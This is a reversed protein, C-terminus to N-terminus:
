QVGDFTYIYSSASPLGCTAGGSNSDIRLRSPDAPVELLITEVAVRNEDLDHADYPGSARRLTLRTAHSIPLAIEVPMCGQDEPKPYGSIRRSLVFVTIRDNNRMAYVGIGPANNIELRRKGASLNVTPGERMRVELMEGAGVSNLVSMLEWQPYAHGGKHWPAHSRWLSGEGFMFFNVLKFGAQRQSLFSDLTATGASLSKMVEEQARAEEATVSQRNLGNMAYGPGGEYSAAALPRNRIASIRRAADAYRRAYPETVQSVQNLVNFFSAKTRAPPGEGEDWGGNYLAIGLFDAAPSAVAAKEGYDFRTRGGIVIEIKEDLDATHWAPSARMQDIVWNQYLGYVEAADYRRGTTADVMSPFVWPAFLPNWTENGIELYIRDFIQTWPRARGQAVRRAAWPRTAPDDQEPRFEGALYDVLGRWEDASLHPEIQLWPRLGAKEMMALTEPLGPIQGGRLPLGGTRTLAELDYSAYGTKIMAHTRLASIGSEKLRAYDEPPLDLFPIAARHIRFEDIDFRGPGEFVLEMRGVPRDEYLLSPVTFEAIHHEWDTGVAFQIGPTAVQRGSLRFRVINSRNARLRVSIQYTEGPRLVEYFDQSTGAHNYAGVPRSVQPGLTLELYSEGGWGRMQDEPHQRLAWEAGPEEDSWFGLPGPRMILGASANWVRDSIMRVRAPDLTRSRIVALDGKRVPPGEGALRFRFGKMREPPVSSYYVIYGKTQDGPGPKWSLLANGEGDDRVVLDSPAAPGAPHAAAERDARTQLLAERRTERDQGGGKRRVPAIALAVPAAPESLRGKADVARVSYWRIADARSFSPTPVRVAPRDAPLIQGVPTIPLWGSIQHEAISDTRIVRFAGGEIRMVTIESGDLAGDRLTDFQSIEHARGEVSNPSDASSIIWTRYIAPEFDGGRMLRAGEGFVGITATTAPAPSAVIRETVEFRAAPDAVAPAAAFVLVLVLKVGHLTALAPVRRWLTRIQSPM